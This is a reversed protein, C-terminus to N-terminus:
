KDVGALFQLVTTNFEVPMEIAAAHGTPMMKLQSGAVAAQGSKIIDVGMLNDREGGIILTPCKIRSIDPPAEAMTMSRMAIASTKPDNRLRTKKYHEIVDPHKEPWGPSFVMTVFEQAAAEPSQKEMVKMREERLRAMERMQEASRQLPVLPSNACILANVVEPHSVTLGIAIRGGMSYGLVYTENIGLAKLLQYLDEVLISMSYGEPPTETQGYGRVDYTLVRYNSSFSPIQNWWMDLNDGAGHILTLCNGNGTIEYNQSIGNAVIKM